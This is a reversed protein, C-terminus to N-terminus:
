NVITLEAWSNGENAVTLVNAIELASMTAGKCMEKLTEESCALLAPLLRAEIKDIDILAEFVITHPVKIINSMHQRETPSPIIIAYPDSM